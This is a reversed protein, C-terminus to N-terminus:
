RQRIADRAGAATEPRTVGDARPYDHPANAREYRYRGDALYTMRVPLAPEEPQGLDELRFAHQGLHLLRVAPNLYVQFGARRARECFAYDESLYLWDEPDRESEIWFPQYFPHFKWWEDRHCLPLDKALREFVCRPTAMFGTAAWKIPVPTPDTSFEIPVDTEFISTPRCLGGKARTVYLGAVIGGLDHAQQAIQMVSEPAFVIDSDISVHVDATSELLFHTATKSRARCLLADNWAPAYTVPHRLMRNMSQIHDPEIYRGYAPGLYISPAAKPAPPTPRWDSPMDEKRVAEIAADLLSPPTM